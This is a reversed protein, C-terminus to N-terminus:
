SSLVTLTKLSDNKLNDKKINFKQDNYNKKTTPKYNYKILYLYKESKTSQEDNMSNTEEVVTTVYDDAYRNSLCDLKCNERAVEFSVDEADLTKFADSFYTKIQQSKKGSVFAIFNECFDNILSSKNTTENNIDKIEEKKSSQEHTDNQSNKISVDQILNNKMARDNNSIVIILVICVMILLAIITKYIRAERKYDYRLDDHLYYKM